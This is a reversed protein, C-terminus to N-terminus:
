KGRKNQKRKKEGKKRKRETIELKQRDLRIIQGNGERVNARGGEEEGEEEHGYTTRM